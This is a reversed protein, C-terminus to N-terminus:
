GIKSQILWVTFAALGSIAFMLAAIWLYVWVIDHRERGGLVSSGEGPDYARTPQQRVTHTGARVEAPPHEVTTVPAM